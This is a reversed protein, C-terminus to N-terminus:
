VSLDSLRITETCTHEKDRTEDDTLRSPVDGCKLNPDNTWTLDPDEDNYTKSTAGYFHATISPDDLTTDIKIHVFPRRWVKAIGSSTIQTVPYPFGGTVMRKYENRHIDGAHFLVGNIANERVITGINNLDSSWDRQMIDSGIVIVKFTGRSNILEQRLWETQKIGLRNELSPDRYWHDDTVIYHVDGWYYSYYVGDNTDVDGYGPNVWLSSFARLSNIKGKQNKDPYSQESGYDHNNWTTYMPVNSIFQKFYKESRQLQNRYWYGDFNVGNSSDVDINEKMYITDGALIAFDPKIQEYIFEWVRQSEYISIDMCSAVIYDFKAGGGTSIGDLDQKRQTLEVDVDNNITTSVVLSISSVKPATRFSGFGVQQGQIYMVYKYKTSPELGTITEMIANNRDKRPQVLNIKRVIGNDNNIGDNNNYEEYLLIEMTYEQLLGHYAWLTVSDYTMNGVMPGMQLPSINNNKIENSIIGFIPTATIPDKATPSNTPKNASSPQQTPNKTTPSFSPVYTPLASPSKTPSNTTIIVPSSLPSYSSSSYTPGFYSPPSNTTPTRTKVTPSPISATPSVKTATTSPPETNNIVSVENDNNSNNTQLENNNNNNGNNRHFPRIVIVMIILIIILVITLIFLWFSGDYLYNKMTKISKSSGSKRSGRGGGSCKKKRSGKSTRASKSKSNKKKNDNIIQIGDLGTIIIHDDDLRDGISSSQYKDYDDFEGIKLDGGSSSDTSSIVDEITAADDGTGFFWASSQDSEETMMTKNVDNDKNTNEKNISDDVVGAAGGHGIPDFIMALDNDEGDDDSINTGGLISKPIENEDSPFFINWKDRPILKRLFESVTSSANSSAGISSADADENDSKNFPM